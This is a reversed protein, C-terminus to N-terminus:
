SWTSSAWWTNAQQPLKVDNGSLSLSFALFIAGVSMGVANVVHPPSSPVTEGHYRSAAFCVASGVALISFMPVPGELTLGSMVVVGTMALLAGLVSSRRLRELRQIDCCPSSDGTPRGGPLIQGFGAELEVLAYFFFGFAGGFALLGYLASGLLARGVPFRHGSVVMVTLM